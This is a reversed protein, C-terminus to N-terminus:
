PRLTAIWPAFTAGPRYYVYRSAGIVQYRNLDDVELDDAARVGIGGGVIAALKPALPMFILDANGIAIGNRVGAMGTTTDVTLAPVDGVLFEKSASAPVVLEINMTAFWEDRVKEYLRQISLRFLAGSGHLATMREQILQVGEKLAEPGAPWIGHEDYYFAEAYGLQILRETQLEVATAFGDHHPKVIQPNRIYHLAVCAKLTELHKPAPSQGAVIPDVARNFDNEVVWWLDETAKSDIQVFDKVMGLDETTGYDEVCTDLDYFKLGDGHVPVPEEWRRQVVQSLFHQKTVKARAGDIAQETLQVLEELVPIGPSATGLIVNLDVIHKRVSDPGAGLISM